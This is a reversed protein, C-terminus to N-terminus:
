AKLPICYVGREVISTLVNGSNQKHFVPTGRGWFTPIEIKIEFFFRKQLVRAM